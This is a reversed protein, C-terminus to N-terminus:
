GKKEEHSIHRLYRDFKEFAESNEEIGLRRKREDIHYTFVWDDTDYRYRCVSRIVTKEGSTDISYIGQLRKQSKDALQVFHLIYDFSRAVKKEAAGPEGGCDKVIEAAADKCFAEPESLHFTMKLRRTGKGALKVATDVSIGDRAEAFIFYDADSRLLNKTVLPLNERTTLVQVIPAEPMLLHLPIEPDTEVLVGELSADEMRQWTSLFTTKGTRVAGTFVVNFGTQVMYAFLRTCQPPLAGRDVQNEFTYEPVIYRRLIIAEQDKKVMGGTFITIRVGDLMYVEHFDQDMREEPTLLLLARILQNRREKGITQPKKVMRGNELFYVREGIIKASSSQAYAELFWEALGALGWNEHYVADALSEYYAPFVTKEARLSKLCARIKDKFFAVEKEYGIIARKQVQLAVTMDRMEGQWDATFLDHIKKCLEDFEYAQGDASLYEDLYFKEM